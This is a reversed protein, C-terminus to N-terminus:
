TLPLLPSPILFATLNVMLDGEFDKKEQPSTDILQEMVLEIKGSDPSSRAVQNNHLTEQGNLWAGHPNEAQKCSRETCCSIASVICRGQQGCAPQSFPLTQMSENVIAELIKCKGITNHYRPPSTPFPHPNIYQALPCSPIM